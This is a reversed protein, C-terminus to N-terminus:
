SSASAGCIIFWTGDGCADMRLMPGHRASRVVGETDFLFPALSLAVSPRSCPKERRRRRMRGRTAPLQFIFPSSPRGPRPAPPARCAPRPPSQAPRPRWSRDAPSAPQRVPARPAPSGARPRRGPSGGQRWRRGYRRCRPRSASPRRRWRRHDDAMGLAAGIVALAVGVDLGLGRGGMARPERGDDADALRRALAPGPQREGDDRALERARQGVLGVGGVGDEGVLRHPRDAGAQRRRSGVDGLHVAEQAAREDLPEPVPPPATRM